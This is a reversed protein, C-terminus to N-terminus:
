NDQGERKGREVPLWQNTRQIRSGAEKKTINVLKKYKKKSEV